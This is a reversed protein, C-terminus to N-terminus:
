PRGRLEHEVDGSRRRPPGQLGRGDPLRRRHSRHRDPQRRRGPRPRPTSRSQSGGAPRRAATMTADNSQRAPRMSRTSATCRPTGCRSAPTPRATTSPSRAPRPPPAGSSSTPHTVSSPARETHGPEICGSSWGYGGWYLGWKEATQVVWRPIDTTMPTACATTGGPAPCIHSRGPQRRQEHRGGPGLRPQLPRRRRRRVELRQPQERGHLPVHLRRRRVSTVKYGNTAIEAIFGEFLPASVSTPTSCAPRSRASRPRTRPSTPRSGARWRLHATTRTARGCGATVSVRHRHHAGGPAPRTKISPSCVAPSTAVTPRRRRACRRGRRCRGPHTTPSTTAERAVGPAALLADLRRRSGRRPVLPASRDHRYPSVARRQAYRQWHATMPGAAVSRSGDQRM